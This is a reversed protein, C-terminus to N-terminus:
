SVGKVGVISIGLLQSRCRLRKRGRISNRSGRVRVLGQFHAQNCCLASVVLQHFAQFSKESGLEMGTNIILRLENRVRRILM